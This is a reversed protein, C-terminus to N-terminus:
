TGVYLGERMLEAEPKGYARLTGGAAESGCDGLYHTEKRGREHDDRRDKGTYVCFKWIQETFEFFIKM